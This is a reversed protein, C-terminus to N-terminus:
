RDSIVESVAELVQDHIHGNTGVIGTNKGLKSGQSFDLEKGYCDTVRGGAEEVMICGAAHDWINETYNRSTPMRLYISAEGRALVAYKCQSDIRIPDNQVGLLGAIKLADGHSSHSSEVSECFTAQATDRIDSVRIRNEKNGNIPRSFAGRNRVGHFLYGIGNVQKEQFPYLSPCSLIGLIVKGEQILALAIAYQDRRIFGKTGDIPDLTWFRSNNGGGYNGLDINEFMSNETIGPIFNKLHDLIKHRIIKGEDTRLSKSDEEAVFKDNPFHKRIENIILAQAAFDAVTVPSNDKKQMSSDRIMGKQVSKCVRSAKIVADIAVNKEKDIDM